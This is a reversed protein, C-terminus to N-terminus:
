KDNKVNMFIFNKISKKMIILLKDNKKEQSEWEKKNSPSFITILNGDEKAGSLYYTLRFNENKKKKSKFM